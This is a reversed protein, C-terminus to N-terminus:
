KDEWLDSPMQYMLENMLRAVEQQTLSHSVTQDELAMHKAARGVIAQAKKRAQAIIVNEITQPPVFAYVFRCGMAEAIAEMSKLTVGGDLEAKEAQAIRSRTVGMKRALQAGSMGLARRVTRIWGEAPIEIDNGHATDVIAQYQRRVTQKVGM